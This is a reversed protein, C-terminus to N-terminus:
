DERGGAGSEGGEGETRRRSSAGREVVVFGYSSILILGFLAFAITFQLYESIDFVALLLIAALIAAALVAVAVITTVFSRHSMAGYQVTRASATSPLVRRLRAGLM